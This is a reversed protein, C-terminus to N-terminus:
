ALTVSPVEDQDRLWPPTVPTSEDKVVVASLVTADGRGFSVMEVDSSVVQAQFTPEPNGSDQEFCRDFCRDCLDYDCMSCRFRGWGASQGFGTCGRACGGPHKRGDCAWNETYGTRDLLIHGKPCKGPTRGPGSSSPPSSFSAPLNEVFQRTKADVLRISNLNDGAGRRAIAQARRGVERRTAARRITQCLGVSRVRLIFMFLLYAGGVSSFVAGTIVYNDRAVGCTDGNHSAATFSLGILLIVSAAWSSMAKDEHPLRFSWFTTVLPLIIAASLWWNFSPDTACMHVKKLLPNCMRASGPSQAVLQPLAATFNAHPRSNECLCVASEPKAVTWEYDDKGKRSNFSSLDLSGTGCARDLMEDKMESRSAGRRGDADYAIAKRLMVCKEEIACGEGANTPGDRWETFSTAGSSCQNWSTCAELTAADATSLDVGPCSDIRYLGTWSFKGPEWYIDQLLELELASKPCALTGVGDGYFLSDCVEVCETISSTSRGIRYFSEAWLYADSYSAFGTGDVPTKGYLRRTACDLAVGPDELHAAYLEPSMSAYLAFRAEPASLSARDTCREADWPKGKGNFHLATASNLQDESMGAAVMSDWSIFGFGQEFRVRSTSKEPVEPERPAREGGPTPEFCQVAGRLALYPLGLGFALSDSPFIRDKANAELWLEYKDTLRQEAWASTKVLAFGFNWAREHKLEAVFFNGASADVTRGLLRRAAWTVSRWVRFPLFEKSAPGVQSEITDQVTSLHDFLGPPICQTSGLRRCTAEELTRRSTIAGFGFYPVELYSLSSDLVPVQTTSNIAWHTCSASIPKQNSAAANQQQEDDWLFQLDSQVIVDDDLLLVKEVGQAKLIEPVYFRVHNFPSTHKPDAEASAVPVANPSDAQYGEKGQPVSMLERREWVAPKGRVLAVAEEIEGLTWLVVSAGECNPAIAKEVAAGLPETPVVVHLVLRSRDGSNICVSNLTTAAALARDTALVMNMPPATATAAKVVGWAATTLLLALAALGTVM